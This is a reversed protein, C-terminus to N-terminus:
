SSIIRRLRRLMARRRILSLTVEPVGLKRLNSLEQELGADDLVGYAYASVLESIYSRIEPYNQYHIIYSKWMEKILKKTNDDVPLLDVLRSVRSWTLESAIDSYRSMTALQRTTGLVETFARRMANALITRQTLVIELEEWGYTSLVKFVPELQKMDIFVYEALDYMAEAWRRVEDFVPRLFIYKSWVEAWIGRVRRAEFVATVYDRVMPLYEAMMALTTPTPVYERAEEIMLEMDARLQILELEPKTFGYKLALDLLKRWMDEPIARYRLGKMATSLVAKYDPKLPRVSIYQLWIDRWETPIRRVELVKRVLETPIVVYESLTALTTPTPTWVRGEDVLVQLELTLDRLALEVDTVGLQKVITLVKEELEKPIVVYRRARYFENVLVRVEDALPKVYVYKEVIPRFVPDVRYHKLLETAEPVYEIISILTSLSPRWLKAEDIMLELEARLQLLSVETPTFGYLEANKLLSKWFEESIVDYRLARLATTLVSKYDPKVPKVTIYKLWISRWVEPVRRVTLVEEVLEKPIVLYESLTAIVSPTPSYEKSSGLREEIDALVEQLAIEIDRFGFKKVAEEKFRGWEEKTIVGSVYARRARNLLTKFDSKFPKVAIYKRYLERYEEVVRQDEFVKDIVEDDIVMYEAMTALTLATPITERKVMGVIRESILKFFEGEEPVLWGRSVLESVLEAMDEVRVWGYSTRYLLWAMARTVYHRIWTRTEVTRLIDGYRLWLELYDTDLSPIWDVGSLTKVQSSIMKSIVSSYDELIKRGEEVKLGLRAIGSSVERLVARWLEYCRDMTARLQLLRREAPLWFVPKRYTYTEVKGTSPDIYGTTFTITFLGSMLEETMDLTVLGTRFLELFGTRLLTMEDTLATHIEAVAAISAFYPHVGKAELFRALLSVDLSIEPSVKKSITELGRATKLKDVIDPIATTMTIGLKSMHELIGWRALWRYDVKDPLDAMLEVVISKDTPYGRSWAFPALDHWKMYKLMMDNLVEYKFNLEKPTVARWTIGMYRTIEEEELTLDYWLVGTVGRWYFEALKEPSPYRFHLLYYMSAVDRAYGVAAVAKEFETPKIIVDRIMMTILDSPSPIKWVSGLPLKRMVGFRDEVTMYFEEPEAFMWKILYDSYGRMKIFYIMTEAIDKPLRGLESPIVDAVRSRLFADGVEAITPFEVPIFNRLHTALLISAFRGYWFGIGLWYFEYFKDAYRMLEDSLNYISAGLAKVVDFEVDAGIGLPKLSFRLKLDTNGIAFAINKAVFALARYPLQLFVAAVFLALLMKLSETYAQIFNEITLGPATRIGLAAYTPRLVESSLRGVADKVGVTLVELVKAFWGRIVESVGKLADVVGTIGKVFVDGLLTLTGTIIDKVATFVTTLSSWVWGLGSIVKDWLWKLGEVVKGSIWILGSWLPDVIYKKLWETPNTIFAQLGSWVGEFFKIIGEFVARIREPLQLVANVFGRFTVGLDHLTKTAETFWKGAGEFWKSITTSLTEFGKRVWEVFGGVGRAVDGLIGTVMGPLKSLQEILWKFGESVKGALGEFTRVIGSILESIVGPLRVVQDLFWSFGTRIKDALSTFLESAGRILGSIIDPLKGVQGLFWEFGSRIRSALDTFVASVRGILDSIAAPIMGIQAIGWEIASRIRGAIDSIIASVTTLASSIAEPIKAIMAAVSTFAERIRVGLDHLAAVLRSIVESIREPITMIQSVLWELGSRIKSTLDTFASVLRSTLDSIVGAVREPITTLMNIVTTLGYKIKEAIDSIVASARSIVESIASSIRGPLETIARWVDSLFKSVTDVVKPFTESVWKLASSIPDVVVKSLITLIESLRGPIGSVTAWISDIVSKIPSVVVEFARKITDVFGSLLGSLFEALQGIPDLIGLVSSSVLDWDISELVDPTVVSTPVESGVSRPIDIDLLLSADVVVSKSNQSSVTM